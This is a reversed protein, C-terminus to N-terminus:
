QRCLFEAFITINSFKRQGKLELNQKIGDCSFQTQLDQDSISGLPFGQSCNKSTIGDIEQIKACGYFNGEKRLIGRRTILAVATIFINLLLDPFDKELVIRFLHRM